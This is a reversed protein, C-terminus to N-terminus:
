LDTCTSYLAPCGKSQYDKRQGGNEVDWVTEQFGATHNMLHLMTVPEQYSLNSLFGDPMQENNEAAYVTTTGSMMILLIALGGAAIKRM